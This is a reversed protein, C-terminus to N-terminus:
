VEVPAAQSSQPQADFPERISTGTAEFGDLFLQVRYVLLHNTVKTEVTQVRLSLRNNAVRLPHGEIDVITEDLHDTSV